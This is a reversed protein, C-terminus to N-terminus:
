GTLWFIWVVENYKHRIDIFIHVQFCLSGHKYRLESVICNMLSFVVVFTCLEVKAKGIPLTFSPDLVEDSVTFTEGYRCCRAHYGM